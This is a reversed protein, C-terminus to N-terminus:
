MYFIFFVQAAESYRTYHSSISTESHAKGAKLRLIHGSSNSSELAQFPSYKQLWFELLFFGFSFILNEAGGFVSVFLMAMGKFILVM